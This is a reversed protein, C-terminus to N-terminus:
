KLDLSFDQVITGRPVYLDYHYEEDTDGMSFPFWWDPVKGYTVDYVEQVARPEEGPDVEFVSISLEDSEVITESEYSGDPMREYWSYFQGSTMHGTTFFLGGRIEGSSGFNDQLAVVDHTYSGKFESEDELFFLSGMMCVAFWIMGTFFTGLFFISAPSEGDWFPNRSKRLEIARKIAWGAFFLAIIVLGIFFVM